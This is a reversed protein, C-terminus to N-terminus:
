DLTETFTADTVNVPKNSTTKGDKRFAGEDMKSSKKMLEKLKKQRIRKLEADREM